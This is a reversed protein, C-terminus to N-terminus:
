NVLVARDITFVKHERRELEDLMIRTQAKRIATGYRGHPDSVIYEKAEEYPYKYRLEINVGQHSAQDDVLRCKVFFDVAKDLRARGRLKQPREIVEVNNSPNISMAVKVDELLSLVRCAIIFEGNADPAKLLFVAFEIAQPIPPTSGVQNNITAFSPPQASFLASGFLIFVTVAITIHKM